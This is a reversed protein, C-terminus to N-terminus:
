HPPPEITVHEGPFLPRGGGLLVPVIGITLNDVSDTALFSHVLVGGGFLFGHTGRDRAATVTRVVDDSCEIGDSADGPAPPQSATVIM